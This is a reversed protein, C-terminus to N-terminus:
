WPKMALTKVAREIEDSIADIDVGIAGAIGIVLEPHSIALPIGAMNEGSVALRKM